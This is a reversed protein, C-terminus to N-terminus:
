IILSGNVRISRSNGIGFNSSDYKFVSVQSTSTLAGVAGVWPGGDIAWAALAIQSAFYVPFPLDFQFGKDATGGTVGNASVIIRLERGFIKFKAIVISVSTLTMSGSASFAPSWSMWDPFGAPSAAKSLCPASIAANSLSFDSGGTVTVTTTSGGVAVGIVYFYKTAGSQVLRLRDGVALIGGYDQAVAFTNASVYACAPLPMWGSQLPGGPAAGDAALAHDVANPNAAGSGNAYNAMRMDGGGSGTFGVAVTRGDLREVQAAGRGVVTHVCEGRVEDRLSEFAQPYVAAAPDSPQASAQVVLTRCDASKRVLYDGADGDPALGVLSVALRGPVLVGQRLPLDVAGATAPGSEDFTGDMAVVRLRVTLDQWDVPVAAHLWVAGNEGQVGADTTAQGTGADAPMLSNGDVTLNITKRKVAM